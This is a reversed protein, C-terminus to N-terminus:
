FTVRIDDQRLQQDQAVQDDRAVLNNDQNLSRTKQPHIAM